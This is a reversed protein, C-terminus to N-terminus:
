PHPELGPLTLYERKEMGGQGSKLGVFCKKLEIPVQVSMGRPYISRATFGGSM